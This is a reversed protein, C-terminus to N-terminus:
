HPASPCNLPQRDERLYDLERAPVACRLFGCDLCVLAKPFVLVGPKDLHKLGMFNIMMESSFEAVRGSACSPCSM